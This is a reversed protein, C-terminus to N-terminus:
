AISRLAVIPRRDHQVTWLGHLEIPAYSIALGTVAASLDIELRAMASQSSSSLFRFLSLIKTRKGVLYYLFLSEIVTCGVLCYGVTDM